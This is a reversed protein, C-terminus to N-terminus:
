SLSAVGLSSTSYPAYSQAGFALPTGRLQLKDFVSSYVENSSVQNSVSQSAKGVKPGLTGTYATCLAGLINGIISAAVTQKLSLGFTPGLIGLPVVGVHCNLSFWFLFINIIPPPKKENEPIRDIGQLEIGLKADLWEEGQRMGRLIGTRRQVERARAIEDTTGSAVDTDEETYPTKSSEIDKEM